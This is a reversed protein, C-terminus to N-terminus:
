KKSKNGFKVAHDMNEQATCWELNEVRNDDRKSNIHNIQPKNDPNSLFAFAVLRHVLFCSIQSDVFINSFIVRKYGQKTPVQKRLKNTKRNMINGFNSIQYIHSRVLDDYSDVVVLDRWIEKEKEM